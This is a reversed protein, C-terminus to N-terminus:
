WRVRVRAGLTIFLILILLIKLTRDLERLGFLLALLFMM